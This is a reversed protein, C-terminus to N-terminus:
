PSATAEVTPKVVWRIALCKPCYLFRVEDEKARSSRSSAGEYQSGSMLRTRCQPCATPLTAPNAFDHLQNELRLELTEKRLDPEAEYSTSCYDCALHEIYTRHWSVATPGMVGNSGSDLRLVACLSGSKCAPCVEGLKRGPISMDPFVRLKVSKM